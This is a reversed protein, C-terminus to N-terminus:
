RKYSQYPHSRIEKLSLIEMPKTKLPSPSREEEMLSRWRIASTKLTDECAM